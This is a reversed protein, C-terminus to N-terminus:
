EEIRYLNLLVDETDPDDMIEDRVLQTAEAESDAEVQGYYEFVQTVAYDWKSM